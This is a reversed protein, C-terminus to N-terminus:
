ANVIRKVFKKDLKWRNVCSNVAEREKEEKILRKALMILINYRYCSPYKSAQEVKYAHDKKCTCGCRTCTDSKFDEEIVRANYSYKDNGSESTVVAYPM